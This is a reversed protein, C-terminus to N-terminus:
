RSAVKSFYHGKTDVNFRKAITHLLFNIGEVGIQDALDELVALENSNAVRRLLADAPLVEIRESVWSLVESPHWPPASAPVPLLADAHAWFISSPDYADNLNAAGERFTLEYRTFMDVLQVGTREFLELSKDYVRATVRAKSRHGAYWTGSRKGDLRRATLMKTSLPRQRSLCVGRPYKTDLVDLVTSADVNVDIAADLRTVRYPCSSLLTLFQNFIGESRMTALVSGSASIRYARYKTSVHLVGDGTSLTLPSCHKYTQQDDVKSPLPVFNHLSVFDRLLESPNDDPSFTVDLWDLTPSSFPVYDM